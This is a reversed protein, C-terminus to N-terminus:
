VTRRNPVDYAHSLRGLAIASLLLGLDRLAIDFYMGTLVLNIIIFLLWVAVIYSFVKPKFIMGIGVIIEIIGVVYFFLKVKGQVAAAAQPAIYQTWDTLVYIFKDLGALIPAIIFVLQLIRYAQYAYSNSSSNHAM